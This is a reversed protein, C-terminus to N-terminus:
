LDFWKIAQEPTRSKELGSLVPILKEFKQVTKRDGKEYGPGNREYRIGEEDGFILYPLEQTFLHGILKAANVMPNTAATPSSVFRYFDLPNIFQTLESQIRRAQYAVFAMAYEDEDDGDAMMSLLTGAIVAAGVFFSLEAATRKINAKEFDTMTKFVSGHKFGSKYLEKMYRGFSVYMGESIVGLETDLHIGLDNNFGFRKRLGPQFYRRFLLLLKGYFRRNLMPDDFKTKIQNTKKYMGSVKNIFQIKKFNAVRPDIGWKGTKEDKIYVDYLNADEGKENKIVNGDKDKLKGRYSDALALGRTVATEHEAIRQTVFFMRMGMEKLLRNGTKTEKNLELASGLLDFEEAFKGIKTQTNYKGVDKLTDGKVTSKLYTSKAWAINKGNFFQGAIAEEAININDILLQNTSQLLNLALTNLATFTTFKSTLKNASIEKGFLSFAQKLEEEGFFVRDIFEELHKFNNSVDKKISARNIGLAKATANAIPMNAANTEIVERREIIDRMIIVSGVIKSKAEYMHAMGAFLAITSGVDHSVFKADTPNIYFVPVTKNRQEKNANIAAGYSDDTSLFSFNRNAYDKTAKFVNYNDKQLKELGEAENSPVTYAFRDWENKIPLQNGLLKQKNVYTKLLALYYKGAPNKPTWNDISQIDNKGNTEVLNKFKPNLFRSNPRAAIGKYVDNKADYIRGFEIRADELLAETLSYRDPNTEKNINKLKKELIKMKNKLTIVLNKGEETAVSNAKYWNAVEQFYRIAIPSKRWKVYEEPNQEKSPRKYKEKLAKLASYEESHYKPTDYPQVFSLIDMLERKGTKENRVFHKVVELIDENFTKPNLDSGKYAVYERYAPALEDITDRTKENAMYLQNKVLTAFLQLTVQSSYIFPDMMYSYSGKDKQADRLENILTQRSIIKNKLQKVTLDVLAKRREDDTIEKAKYREQIYKYEEDKTVFNTRNNDTINKILDKLQANIGEDDNFEYLLDAQIVLSTNYYLKEQRKMKKIVADLKDELATIKTESKGDVSLKDRRTNIVHELKSIVSEESTGGGYFDKISNGVKYLQQALELREDQTLNEIIKNDSYKKSIENLTEASDKAIKDLYRVFDIFDEVQKSKDEKIALIKNLQYSLEIRNTDNVMPNTELINLRNKLVEATKEILDTFEDFRKDVKKSEKTEKTLEGTFEIANLRKSFLKTVLQNVADESIGFISKIARIIKNIATRIPGVNKETRKAGEIGMATVLVEKDLAIGQLEPYANKVEEYLSTNKVLAIAQAVLPNDGLLDILIHSFEHIHTDATMLEPNLTIEATNNNIGTVSGKSLLNSDFKIKISIGAAAFSNKLHLLQQEINPPSIFPIESDIKKSEKVQDNKDVKLTEEFPISYQGYQDSAIKLITDNVEQPQYIKNKPVIVKDFFTSGFEVVTYPFGYTSLKRTTGKIFQPSFPANEYVEGYYMTLAKNIKNLIHNADRNMDGKFLVDGFPTLQADAPFANVLSYKLTKVVAELSEESNLSEITTFFSQLEPSEQAANGKFFEYTQCRKM